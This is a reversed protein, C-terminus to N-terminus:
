KDRYVEPLPGAVGGLNFKAMEGRLDQLSQKEGRPPKASKKKHVGALIVHAPPHEAWYEMLDNVDWLTLQDIESFTWGTSTAIHGYM